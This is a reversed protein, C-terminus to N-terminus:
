PTNSASDAMEIAPTGDLFKFNMVNGHPMEKPDGVYLTTGDRQEHTWDIKRFEYIDFHNFSESKTGGAALYKIPDYETYFLFFMYSQELTTSM